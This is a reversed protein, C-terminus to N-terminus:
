RTHAVPTIRVYPPAASIIPRSGECSRGCYTSVPSARLNHKESVDYACRM